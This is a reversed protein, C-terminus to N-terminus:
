SKHTQTSLRQVKSLLKERLFHLRKRLHFVTFELMRSWRSATSADGRLRCTGTFESCSARALGIPSRGTLVSFSWLTSARKVNFRKTSIGKSFCHSFFMKSKLRHLDTFDTALKEACKDQAIDFSDADLIKSYKRINEFTEM